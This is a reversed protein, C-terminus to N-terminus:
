HDVSHTGELSPSAAPCFGGAHMSTSGCGRDEAFHHYRYASDLLKCIDLELLQDGCGGACFEPSCEPHLIVPPYLDLLSSVHGEALAVDMRCFLTM